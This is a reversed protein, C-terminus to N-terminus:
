IEGKLKLKAKVNKVLRQTAPSQVKELVENIAKSSLPLPDYVTETKVNQIGKIFEVIMKNKSLISVAVALGSGILGFISMWLAFRATALAMFLNVCGFIIASMGLKGAGNFMAVAGLAIIPIALTVLWNSNSKKVTEWLQQSPTPPEVIQQPKQWPWTCNSNCGSCFIMIIATGIIVLTLAIIVGLAEYDILKM